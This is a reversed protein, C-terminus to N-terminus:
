ILSLINFTYSLFVLMHITGCVNVLILSWRLESIISIMGWIKDKMIKLDEHNQTPTKKARTIEGECSENWPKM